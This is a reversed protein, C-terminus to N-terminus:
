YLPDPCSQMHVYRILTPEPNSDTEKKVIRDRGLVPTGVWIDTIIGRFLSAFNCVAFTSAAARVGM